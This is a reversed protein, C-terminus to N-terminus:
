NQMRKLLNYGAHIGLQGAQSIDRIAEDRKGMTFYAYGRNFYASGLAPELAIAQDFCDIADAYAGMQLLITGLNYHAVALRPNLELATRLDSIINELAMNNEANLITETSNDTVVTTTGRRSEQLNYRAVARMFYAPTFDPTIKLTHDLDAIANRYDRITMYDMARAFYDIAHASSGAANIKTGYQQIDAFHRNVDAERSLTAVRNTVHIVYPLTRAANLESIERVYVDASASDADDEATYYSLTYLPQLEVAINRDQVRGRLGSANFSQEVQEEADLTLLTKFQAATNDAADKEKNDASQAAASPATHAMQRLRRYETSALSNQGSKEYIQARLAYGAFMDPYAEIVKNVDALAGAYDRKDYLLTARNFLARHNDPELSIVRNFDEVARDNDHLEARLLGRNFLATVNMPEADIVYDFDRLAGNLDGLQYRAVATNIRLYNRDPQLKLATEMDDLAAQTDGGPEFNIAARVVYAQACNGNVQLAREIDAKAAITDARHLNLQARGVYANDFKPYYRLLETYSSDAASFLGASEEAIAKNFLLQKNHPLLNLAENYDSIAGLNNGRCQRSVGRVEWADPLFPNRELAYSADTEAGVYDELNYKAVARFFYPQALYPKAAIVQNFYQIALVYDEFYLANRGVTTVQDTNLQALCVATPCIAMLLANLLIKKM